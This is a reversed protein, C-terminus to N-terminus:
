HTQGEEMFELSIGSLIFSQMQTDMKNFSLQGIGQRQLANKQIESLKSYEDPVTDRISKLIVLTATLTTYINPPLIGFGQLVSLPLAIAEAVIAKWKFKDLELYGSIEYACTMAIPIPYFQSQVYFAYFDNGIAVIIYPLAKMRGKQKDDLSDWWNKVKTPLSTLPRWISNKRLLPEDSTASKAPSSENSSSGDINIVVSDSDRMEQLETGNGDTLLRETLDEKPLMSYAPLISLLLGISLINKLNIPKM